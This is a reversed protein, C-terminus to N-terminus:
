EAESSQFYRYHKSPVRGIVAGGNLVTVCLGTQSKLTMLEDSIWADNYCSVMISGCGSTHFVKSASLEAPTSASKSKSLDLKDQMPYRGRKSNEM